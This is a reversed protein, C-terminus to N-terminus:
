MCKFIISFTYNLTYLKMLFAESRKHDILTLLFFKVLQSILSHESVNTAGDSLLLPTVNGHILLLFTFKPRFQILWELKSSSNYAPLHMQAWIQNTTELIAIVMIRLTIGTEDRSNSIM